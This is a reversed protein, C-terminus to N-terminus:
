TSFYSHCAGWGPTRRYGLTRYAAKLRHAAGVLGKFLSEFRTTLYRWQEQEIGLRQLIPPLRHNIVGRKGEQLIRGTFEVVELYDMLHYPLGSPMDLRLDGLFPLLHAPQQEPLEPTHTAIAAAIREKVSTYDSEEPTDALQARIPNLDVYVMCALIAKEDLLAQSKFRGEWFRGTCGDEANAKRAIQENMARMFWSLDALRSRWLTVLGDLILWEAKSLVEGQAFRRSLPNGSFLGHWRQIVELATWQTAAEPDMRVVVHYHNSMVAYACLDLAFLTALERLRDRIWGRRHEFSRGSEADEGCLFARRVCRVSCHYFPTMELSVLAKRPKTM